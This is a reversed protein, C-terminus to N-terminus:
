KRVDVIAALLVRTALAQGAEWRNFPDSDNAMLHTLDADSYDFRVHVPASFGRLLSPVPKEAVNAFVFRQEAQTVSLVVTQSGNDRAEGFKGGQELRPAVDRGNAGVLGVALPVVFPQKEPQGPTPPCSQKVHLTYTKAAADHEGRCEIVPTGGQ